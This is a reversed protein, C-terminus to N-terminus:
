FNLTLETGQGWSELAYVENGILYCTPNESHRLDHADKRVGDSYIAVLDDKGVKDLVTLGLERESTDAGKRYYKLCCHSSYWKTKLEDIKRKVYAGSYKYYANQWDINRYQDFRLVGRCKFSGCKCHLGDYFSAETDMCQYDYTLEEGPEIDRIAVVLSSDLAQFGCNPDCSHNFFMCEESLTQEIYNRPWDFLDDDIMYSYKHMFDKSEPYQKFMELAEEKTRGSSVDELQLYDCKSLDCTFIAEGRKVSEKAFVGQHSFGYKEQANRVDVQKFFVM